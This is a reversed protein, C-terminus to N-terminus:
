QIEALWVGLVRDVRKVIMNNLIDGLQLAASTVIKKTEEKARLQTDIFEREVREMLCWIDGLDTAKGTSKPVKTLPDINTTQRSWKLKDTMLFMRHTKHELENYAFSYDHDALLYRRDAVDLIMDTTKIPSKADTRLVLRPTSFDYSPMEGEDAPEVTGMFPLGDDRYMLSDFRRGATRLSVM